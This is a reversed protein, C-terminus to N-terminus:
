SEAFGAFDVGLGVIMSGLHSDHVAIQGKGAVRNHDAMIFAVRNNARFGVEVAREISPQAIAQQEAKIGAWM